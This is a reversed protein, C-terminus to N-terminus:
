EKNIKQTDYGLTATGAGGSAAIVLNFIEQADVPESLLWALVLVTLGVLINQVPIPLQENWKFKKACIGLVYTLITSAIYVLINVM